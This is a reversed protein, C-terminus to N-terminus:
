VITIDKGFHKEKDYLNYQNIGLYKDVVNSIITNIAYVKYDLLENTLHLSALYINFMMHNIRQDRVNLSALYEEKTKHDFVNEEEFVFERVLRIVEKEFKRVHHNILQTQNKLLTKLMPVVGDDYKDSLEFYKAAIYEPSIYSFKRVAELVETDLSRSHSEEYRLHLMLDSKTSFIQDLMQVYRDVNKKLLVDYDFNNKATQGNIYKENFLFIDLNRLVTKRTNTDSSFHGYPINIMIFFNPIYRKLVDLHWKESDPIKKLGRKDHKNKKGRNRLKLDGGKDEWENIERANNYFDLDGDISMQQIEDLTLDTSNMDIDDLNIDGQVYEFDAQHDDALIL